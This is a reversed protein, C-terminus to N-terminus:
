TWTFHLYRVNRWAPRARERDIDELRLYVAGDNARADLWTLMACLLTGPHPEGTTSPAFRGVYSFASSITM